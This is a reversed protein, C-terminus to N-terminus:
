KKGRFYYAVVLILAATMAILFYSSQHNEIPEDLELEIPENEQLKEQIKETRTKNWEDMATEQVVPAAIIMQGNIYQYDPEPEIDILPAPIVAGAAMNLFDSYDKCKNTSCMTPIIAPHLLAWERYFGKYTYSFKDKFNQPFDIEGKNYAILIERVEYMSQITKEIELPDPSTVPIDKRVQNINKNRWIEAYEKRISEENWKPVPSYRRGKPNLRDSEHNLIISQISSSQNRAFFQIRQEREKTTVLSM